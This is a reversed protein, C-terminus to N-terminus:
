ALWLTQQEYDDLNTQGACQAIHMRYEWDELYRRREIAANRSLILYDKSQAWPHADPRLARM